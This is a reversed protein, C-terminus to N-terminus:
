NDFIDIVGGLLPCSKDEYLEMDCEITAYNDLIKEDIATVGSIWWDSTIKNVFDNYNMGIREAQFKDLYINIDQVMKVYNNLNYLNMNTRLSMQHQMLISAPSGLRENCAQLIVFAMSAAMDAYCILTINKSKLMNMYNIIHHGDMVSGGPSNIYIYTTNNITRMNNIFKVSTSKTIEGTIAIMNDKTLTIHTAYVGMNDNALTIHTAYVSIILFVLYNM